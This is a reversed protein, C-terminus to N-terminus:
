LANIKLLQCAKCVEKASPEGCRICVAPNEGTKYRSKLIPLLKDFSRLIAFKTGPYKEELENLCNRISSRYAQESYPCEADSYKINNLLAYLVDEKEPCERLPKIRPVFEKMGMVGTVPGSRALRPFESRFFNMLVTQAEDDLNHGVALKTCKLKRAANNLLRRRMVGCFSCVNKRKKAIEDLTIGFEKKFSFLYLPIKEKRCFDEACKITENRYGGIGEDIAVAVPEYQFKKLLYLLVLSDKGGSVGVATRDKRSLMGNKAITKRVRREYLKSFCSKCLLQGAYRLEIIARNRCRSCLGRGHNSAM